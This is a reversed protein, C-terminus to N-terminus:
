FKKSTRLKNVSRGSLIESTNIHVNSVIFKAIDEMIAEREREGQEEGEWEDEERQGLNVEQSRKHLRSLLGMTKELAIEDGLAM